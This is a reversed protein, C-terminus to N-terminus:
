WPWPSRPEDESHEDSSCWVVHFDEVGVVQQRQNAHCRLVRRQFIEVNLSAADTRRQHGHRADHRAEELQVRDIKCAVFNARGPRSPRCDDRGAEDGVGRDLYQHQIVVQKIVLICRQECHRELDVLVQELQVEAPIGERTGADVDQESGGEVVRTEVGDSLEVVGAPELEGSVTVGREARAVLVHQGDVVAREPDLGERLLQPGAARPLRPVVPVRQGHVHERMPARADLCPQCEPTVAPRVAAKGVERPQRPLEHGRGQSDELVASPVDPRPLAVQRRRERHHLGAGAGQREM